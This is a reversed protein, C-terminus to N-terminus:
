TSLIPDILIFELTLKVQFAFVSQGVNTQPQRIHNTWEVVGITEPGREFPHLVTV